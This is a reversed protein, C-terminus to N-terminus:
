ARKTSQSLKPPKRSTEFSDPNDSSTASRSPNTAFPACAASTWAPAPPTATTAGSNASTAPTAPRANISPTAVRPRVYHTLKTSSPRSIDLVYSCTQARGTGVAVHAAPELDAPHSARPFAWPGSDWGHHDCTLPLVPIPRSDPFEQRHRTIVVDRTPNSHRPSLPQGNRLPLRRGRVGRHDILVAAEPIYLAGPGTRTERTPFTYVRGPDTAPSRTHAGPATPRCYHPRFGTQCSLTGLFRVGAASLRCSVAPRM